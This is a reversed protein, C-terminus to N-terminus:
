RERDVQLLPLLICTTSIRASGSAAFPLPEAAPSSLALSAQSLDFTATGCGVSFTAEFVTYGRPGTPMAGLQAGVLQVFKLGNAGDKVTPPNFFMEDVLLDGPHASVFRLVAPDFPLDVSAGYVNTNDDVEVAVTVKDGAFYTAKPNRVVLRANVADAATKAAPAAAAALAGGAPKGQQSGDTPGYRDFNQSVLVLDFINVSGDGNIDAREDWNPAGPAADYATAVKALDFLNIVKDGNADGAIMYMDGLPTDVSVVEITRSIPLYGQMQVEVIRTGFPSGAISFAGTEDTLATGSAGGDILVRANAYNTRGQLIIRGTVDDVWARTQCSVQNSYASFQGTNSNYARARFFYLTNSSLGSDRYATPTAPRTPLDSWNVLNRSREIYVQTVSPDTLAWSLDIMSYSVTRCSLIIGGPQAPAGCTTAGSWGTPQGGVVGRVQYTYPQGPTLESDYFTTANGPLTKIAGSSFQPTRMVEISDFAGGNVWQLAVQNPGPQYTCILDFPQNPTATPTPTNTRTATPTQTATPTATATATNTATPTRTPTQTNTPTNTPTCNPCPTPTTTPTLTNTATATNTPPVTNTPTATNTPTPTNTPTHTPTNTPTNTPTATPPPTPPDGPNVWIDDDDRPDYVLKVRVASPNGTLAPGEANFFDIHDSGPRTPFDAPGIGNTNPFPIGNIASTPNTARWAAAIDTQTMQVGTALPNIDGCAFFHLRSQTSTWDSTWLYNQGIPLQVETYRDPLTNFQETSWRERNGEAPLRLFYLERLEGLFRPEQSEAVVRVALPAAAKPLGVCDTKPHDADTAFDTTSIKAVDDAVTHAMNFPPLQSIVNTDPNDLVRGRFYGQLAISDQYNVFTDPKPVPTRLTIYKFEFPEAQATQTDSPVVRLAVVNYEHGDVFFRKLYWPNGPTLNHGGQGNDIAAWTNGLARGVTVVVSEDFQNVAQVSLFWAGDTRGLNDGGAPIRRVSSRSAIALDGVNFSAARIFDPYSAYEGNGLPHLGGSTSWFDFDATPQSGYGGVGINKLTVLHDLFQASEGRRLVINEVSFVVLGDGPRNIPALNDIAGNGNFDARVGTKAALSNESDIAVIDPQGDFNADFSTVGFGFSAGPNWGVGATRPPLPLENRGTAMPFAIRSNGPQGHAPRDQTDVFLYTFEQLLASFRYDQSRDASFRAKDLYSPEYWMRTYVKERADQEEISIRSYLASLPEGSNRFEDLYAPDFTVSDKRPAQPLQPNFPAWPDTYPPVEIVANAVTDTIISTDGATGSFDNPSRYAKGFVRLGNEDKVIKGTPNNTPDGSSAPDFWFKVRNRLAVPPRQTPSTWDGWQYPTTTDQAWLQYLGQPALFASTLLYLDPNPAARNTLPDVRTGTRAPALDPLAFETYAWPLTWFQETFFFESPPGGEQPLEGYKQRLAGLFQPNVTEKRYTWQMERPDNYVAGGPTVYPFPQNKQTIPPVPGVLNGLYGIADERDTPTLKTIQNVDTFIYHEQNYPPLMPLPENVAYGKLRVSHQANLVDAGKPTPTRLTIFGFDSPDTPVSFGPPLSCPAAITPANNARAALAVVNYEHGDVYFRKLFWPDGPRRDPTGPQDEMATYPRGLARGLWLNVTGDVTDIAEAYAFWPGTPFVCANSGPGGNRTSRILQAPGQTGALAMDGTYIVQPGLYRPRLDGTYWLDLAVANNFIGSVRVVHDLFQAYQGVRLPQGSLNVHMVALETGNPQPSPGGQKLGQLAGDGNFDAAIGTKTFLSLESDVHVIDPIGDFNADLSTLGYGNGDNAGNDTDIQGDPGFLDGGRMGVPFVFQTAGAQGYIPEPKAAGRPAPQQNEMLMYTFEQMIAPFWIDDLYVRAGGILTPDTPEGTDPDRTLRDDRNLDKDWHQPEYWHRLWVKEAANIGGAFLQNYLGLRQNEDFTANEAMYAPNWTVSDKRPAEPHQPHFVGLLDTYPADEPVAGTIPDFVVSTLGAGPDVVNDAGAGFYGRGYVRLTFFPAPGQAGVSLVGIQWLGAGIAVLLLAGLIAAGGKWWVSRSSM